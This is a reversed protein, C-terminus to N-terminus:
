NGASFHGDHEQACRGLRRNTKSDAAGRDTGRDDTRVSIDTSKARPRWGDNSVLDKQAEHFASPLFLFANCFACFWLAKRVTIACLGAKDAFVAQVPSFLTLRSAIPIDSRPKGSLAPLRVKAKLRRGEAKIEIAGKM